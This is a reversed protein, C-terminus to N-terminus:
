ASPFDTIAPIGMVNQKFRRLLTKAIVHPKQLVHFYMPNRRIKNLRNNLQLRLTDLPTKHLIAPTSVRFADFISFRQTSCPPAPVPRNM